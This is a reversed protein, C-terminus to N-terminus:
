MSANSTKIQTNTHTHHTQTYASTDAQKHTHIHTKTHTNILIHAQTNSHTHTQTRTNTHKHKHAHTHTHTLMHAPLSIHTRICTHIHTQIHTRVHTNTHYHTLKFFIANYNFSHSHANFLVLIATIVDFLFFKAYKSLINYEPINQQTNVM